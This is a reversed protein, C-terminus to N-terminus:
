QTPNTLNSLEEDYKEEDTKVEEKFTEPTEVEREKKLREKKLVHYEELLPIASKLEQILTKVQWMNLSLGKSTYYSHPKKKIYERIDLLHSSNIYKIIRVRFEQNNYRPNHPLSRLMNCTVPLPKYQKDKDDM